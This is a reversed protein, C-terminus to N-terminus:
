IYTTEEVGKGPTAGARSEGHNIHYKLWRMQHVQDNQKSGLFRKPNPIVLFAFMVMVEFPCSLTQSSLAGGAIQQFGLQGWLELHRAHRAAHGLKGCNRQQCNKTRQELPAWEWTVTPQRPFWAWAAIFICVLSTQGDSASNTVGASLHMGGDLAKWVVATAVVDNRLVRWFCLLLNKNLDDNRLKWARALQRIRAWAWTAWAPQWSPWAWAAIPSCGCGTDVVRVWNSVVANLCLCAELANFIVATASPSGGLRLYCLKLRNIDQNWLKWGAVVQRIRALLHSLRKSSICPGHARSIIPLGQLHNSGTAEWGGPWQDPRLLISSWDRWYHCRNGIAQFDRANGQSKSGGFTSAHMVSQSFRKRVVIAFFHLPM